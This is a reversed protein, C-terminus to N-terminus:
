FFKLYFIGCDLTNNAQINGCSARLLLWPSPNLERKTQDIKFFYALSLLTYTLPLLILAIDSMLIYSPRSDYLLIQGRNIDIVVLIWHERVNIANYVYDVDVWGLQHNPELGLMIEFLNEEKVWVNAVEDTKEYIAKFSSKPTFFNM